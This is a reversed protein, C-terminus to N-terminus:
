ISDSNILKITINGRQSVVNKSSSFYYRATLVKGQVYPDPGILRINSSYRILDNLSGSFLRVKNGPNINFGKSEDPASKALLSKFTIAQLPQIGINEIFVSITIDSDMSEPSSKPDDAVLFLKWPTPYSKLAVDFVLPQDGHIVNFEGLRETYHRTICSNLCFISLILVVTLYKKM